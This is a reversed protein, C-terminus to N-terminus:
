VKECNQPTTCEAELIIKSPKKEYEGVSLEGAEYGMSTIPADLKYKFGGETIGIITGKPYSDPLYKFRFRVGVKIEDSTLM